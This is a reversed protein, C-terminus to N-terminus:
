GRGDRSWPRKIKFSKFNIFKSDTKPKDKDEEKDRSKGKELRIEEQGRDGTRQKSGKESCEAVESQKKNVTNEKSPETREIRSSSPKPKVAPTKFDCLSKMQDLSQFIFLQTDFCLM